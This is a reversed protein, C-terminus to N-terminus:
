TEADNESMENSSREVRWMILCQWLAGGDEGDEAGCGACTGEPYGNNPLKTAPAPAKKHMPNPESPETNEMQARVHDLLEKPTPNDQTPLPTLFHQPILPFRIPPSSIPLLIGSVMTHQLKFTSKGSMVDGVTSVGGIQVSFPIRYDDPLGSSTTPKSKNPLKSTDKPANDNSNSTSSM